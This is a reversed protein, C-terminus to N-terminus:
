IEKIHKIDFRTEFIEQIKIVERDKLFTRQINNLQKQALNLEKKALTQSNNEPPTASNIIILDFYDQLITDIKVKITNTLLTIFKKELNLTLTKNSNTVFSCNKLVNAIAPSIVISKLM